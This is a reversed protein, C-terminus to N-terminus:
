FCAAQAEVSQGLLRLAPSEAYWVLAAKQM